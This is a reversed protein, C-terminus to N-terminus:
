RRRPSLVDTLQDGLLNFSLVLASIFFGPVLILHPHARVNQLGVAESIMLGFTPRDQIGVGLYSLGVEAAAVAGLSLTLAVILLNGCNPLLHSFLIRMTSAGSAQASVVYQSERLALVQSRILRAIGVWGFLSLSGFVLFYTPYGSRGIWELGTFDSVDAALSEVRHKMTANIILLLLITPVSHFIEGLRMIVYDVWGRRYGALLGLSVGLILGGSIMTALSIIVTTQASWISRSLLDHGPRDTGLPHDWSPGENSRTHCGEQTCELNTDNFGEPAIFPALIGAGYIIAIVIIAIVAVPRRLTRRLLRSSGPAVTQWEVAPNTEFATV